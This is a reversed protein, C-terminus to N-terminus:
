PRIPSRRRFNALERGCCPQRSLWDPESEDPAFSRDPAFLWPFQGTNSNRPICRGTAWRPFPLRAFSCCFWLLLCDLSATTGASRSRTSPHRVSPHRRSLFPSSRVGIIWGAHGRLHSDGSKRSSPREFFCPTQKNERNALIRHKDQFFNILYDPFPHNETSFSTVLLQTKTKM